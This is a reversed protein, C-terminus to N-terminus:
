KIINSVFAQKFQPIGEGRREELDNQEEFLGIFPEHLGVDEVDEVDEDIGDVCDVDIGEEGGEEGQVGIREYGDEGSINMADDHEDGDDDEEEEEEEETNDDHENDDDTGTTVIGASTIEKSGGESHKWGESRASGASGTWM